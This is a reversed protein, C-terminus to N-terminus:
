VAVPLLKLAADIERQYASAQGSLVEDLTVARGLLGSEFPAYTLALDRRGEELTVEPPQRTAVCQGLEHYELALLRSDTDNFELTYTWVREGGFLEASVSEASLIRGRVRRQRGVALCEEIFAKKDLPLAPERGALEDAVVQYAEVFPRVVRPALHMPQTQHM